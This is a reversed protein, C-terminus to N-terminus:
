HLPELTAGRGRWVTTCDSDGSGDITVVLADDHPSLLFASAAHSRHHAHFHLPPIDAPAVGLSRVLSNELTRRLAAPAFLGVNRQQWRRTAPDPPHRINLEEYFRAMDGSAYRHADWGYIIADIGSLDVGALALCAQISRIPFLNA